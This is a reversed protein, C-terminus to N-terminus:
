ILKTLNIDYQDFFDTPYKDIRGEDDIIIEEILSTHEEENRYFFNVKAKNADLMGEKIAVRLSYFVHDSHTEIFLQIGNQAALAMLETLKSQGKPHIHAEPNEIIIIDNPKAKLVATVVPLIYTVGFGVNPSQYFNTNSSKKQEFAFSSSSIGKKYDVDPKFIINPSIEGLWANLQSIFNYNPVEEGSISEKYVSKPHALARIPIDTSQLGELLKVTNQGHKGLGLNDKYTDYDNKYFLKPSVREANLYEFGDNFITSDWFEEPITSKKKNLSFITSKPEAPIYDFVFIGQIEDSLILDFVLKNEDRHESIIDATTGLEIIKGNLKLISKNQLEKSSQRLLLLVQILSSKGMGNIGTFLNFNSTPMFPTEKLAKYNKIYISEIM